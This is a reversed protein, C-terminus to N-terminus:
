ASRRNRAAIFNPWVPSRESRSRTIGAWCSAANGRECRAAPGARGRTHLNRYDRPPVRTRSASARTDRCDRRRHQRRRRGRSRAGGPAGALGAVRVASPGMDVGRRSQGLDLPVGLIRIKGPISEARALRRSCEPTAGRREARSVPQPIKDSGVRSTRYEHMMVARVWVDAVSLHPEAHQAFPITERVHDLGCIWAVAREIGM